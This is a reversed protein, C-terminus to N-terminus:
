AQSASGRIAGGASSSFSLDRWFKHRRYHLLLSPSPFSSPFCLMSYLHLFASCYPLLFSLSLTLAGTTRVGAPAFIHCPREGGAAAATRVTHTHARARYLLPSSPITSHPSICIHAALLILSTPFPHISVIYCRHLATCHMANCHLATCHFATCHLTPPTLVSGCVCM